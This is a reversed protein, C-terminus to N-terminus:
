KGEKKPEWNNISRNSPTCPFCPYDGISKGTHLCNLCTRDEQPVWAMCAARMLRAKNVTRNFLVRAMLLGPGYRGPNEACRKRATRLLEARRCVREFNRGYEYFATQEPTMKM